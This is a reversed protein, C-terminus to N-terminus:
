YISSLNSLCVVINWEYNEYRVTKDDNFMTQVQSKSKTKRKSPKPCNGVLNKNECDFQVEETLISQLRCFPVKFVEFPSAIKRILNSETIFTKSNQQQQQEAFCIALAVKSSCVSSSIRVKRFIWQLNDSLQLSTSSSCLIIPLINLFTKTKPM